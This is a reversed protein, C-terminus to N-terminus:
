LFNDMNKNNNNNMFETEEGRGLIKSWHLLRVIKKMLSHTKKDFQPESKEKLVATLLELIYTYKTHV